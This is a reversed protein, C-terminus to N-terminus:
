YRHNLSVTNATVAGEHRTHGALRHQPRGLHSARDCSRDLQTGGSIDAEIVISRRQVPGDKTAVLGDVVTVVAGLGALELIEGAGAQHSPSSPDLRTRENDVTASQAPGIEDDGGATCRARKGDVSELLYGGPRALLRQRGSCSRRGEGHQPTSCDATLQGLHVGSEAHLDCQDLRPALEEAPLIAIHGIRQGGDEGLVADVDPEPGADDSSGGAGKSGAEM